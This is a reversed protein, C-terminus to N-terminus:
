ATDVRRLTQLTDTVTDVMATVMVTKRRMATGMVMQKRAATCMGMESIITLKKEKARQRWQNSRGVGTATVTVWM